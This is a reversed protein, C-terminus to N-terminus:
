LNLDCEIGLQRQSQEELALSRETMSGSGRPVCGLPAYRLMKTNRVCKIFSRTSSMHQLCTVGNMSGESVATLKELAAEREETL